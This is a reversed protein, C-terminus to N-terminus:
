PTGRVLVTVLLAMWCLAFFVALTIMTASVSPKTLIQTDLWRAFGKHGGRELEEKVQIKVDERDLAFLKLRADFVGSASYSEELERLKREWRVQWFKGGLAVRFWFYCVVAGVAAVFPAYFTKQLGFFAVALATNLVLFYNSRQWFLNIELNRTDLVIKFIDKPTVPDTLNSDAM